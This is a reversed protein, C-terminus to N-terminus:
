EWASISLRSPLKLTIHLHSNHTTPALYIHLPSTLNGISAISAISPSYRISHTDDRRIDVLLSSYPTHRPRSTRRALALSLSSPLPLAHSLIPYSLLPHPYSLLHFLIPHPFPISPIPHPISKIPPWPVSYTLASLSHTLPVTCVTCDLVGYLAPCLVAARTLLPETGLPLVLCPLALCHICPLATRQHLHSSVHHSPTHRQHATHSVYQMRPEPSPKQQSTRISNDDYQSTTPRGPLGPM